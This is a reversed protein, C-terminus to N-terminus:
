PNRLLHKFAPAAGADGGVVTIRGADLLEEWPLRGYLALVWSVPDGALRCDVPGSAAPRIALKGHRFTVFLRPGGEVALEYELDVTADGHRNRLEFIPAVGAIVLRAWDPGIQWSANATGAIDWGHLLQEGLLTCTTAACSLTLGGHWRLADAASRGGTADLFREIGDRLMEALRRGDREPMGEFARRHSGPVDTLDVPHRRDRGQAYDAYGEAGIALHAAAEGVTWESGPIPAGPDTISGLLEMTRPTQRRLADRAARLDVPVM